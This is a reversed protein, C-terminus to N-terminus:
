PPEGERQQHRLPVVVGDGCPHVTAPEGDRASAALHSAGLKDVFPHGLVPNSQLRRRLVPQQQGVADIDPLPLELVVQAVLQHLPGVETARCGEVFEAALTAGDRALALHAGPVPVLFVVPVAHVIRSAPHQAPDVFALDGRQSGFEGLQLVCALLGGGLRGCEALLAVRHLMPQVSEQPDLPKARPGVKIDIFGFGAGFAM